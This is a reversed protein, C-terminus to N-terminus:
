AEPYHKDKLWLECCEKLMETPSTSVAEDKYAEIVSVEESYHQRMIVGGDVGMPM